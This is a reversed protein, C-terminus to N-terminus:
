TVTVLVKNQEVSDGKNVNVAHVKGARPTKLENEMKMSELIVLTQGAEVEQGPQVPVDIILGPMPARIVVEGGDEVFGASSNALRQEREDMVKVSYLAGWLLVDYRGGSEEVLGEYSVNDVLLSYMAKDDLALFDIDREEGNVLLKGDPLVDITYEKENVTAVYRM